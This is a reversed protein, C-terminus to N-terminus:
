RPAPLFPWSIRPQWPRRIIPSRLQARSGRQGAVLSVPNSSATINASYPASVQVTASTSTANQGGITVVTAPHSSNGPTFSLTCSAQPALSACASSDQIVDTWGAPLTASIATATSTTSFNIVTVAVPTASRAVLEISAPSTSLTAPPPPPPPSVVIPSDSAGGCAALVWICLGIIRLATRFRSEISDRSVSATQM